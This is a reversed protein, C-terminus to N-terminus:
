GTPGAESKRIRRAISDVHESLQLRRKVLMAVAARTLNPRQSWIAEAESQWRRWRVARTAVRKAHAQDFLVTRRIM